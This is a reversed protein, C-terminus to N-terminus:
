MGFVLGPGEPAVPLAQPTHSVTRLMDLAAEHQGRHQYLAVLESYRGAARLAKEGARLDVHNARNVFRLLHGTDSMALM